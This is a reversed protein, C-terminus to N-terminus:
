NVASAWSYSTLSAPRIQRLRSSSPPTAATINAGLRHAVLCALVDSSPLMLVAASFRTQSSGMVQYLVFV